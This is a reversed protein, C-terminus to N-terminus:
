ERSAPIVESIINVLRYCYLHELVTEKEIDTGFLDDHVPNAGSNGGLYLNYGEETASLCFNDHICWTSGVHLKVTHIYQKEMPMDLNLDLM